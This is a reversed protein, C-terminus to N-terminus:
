GLLSHTGSQVTTAQTNSYERVSHHYHPQMHEGPLQNPAPIFLDKSRLFITFHM